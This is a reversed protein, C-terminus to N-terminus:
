ARHPLRSQMQGTGGQLEVSTQKLYDGGKEIVMLPPIFATGFLPSFSNLPSLFVLPLTTPPPACPLLPFFSSSCALKSSFLGYEGVQSMNVHEFCSKRHFKLVASLLDTTCPVRFPLSGVACNGWPLIFNYKTKSYKKSNM